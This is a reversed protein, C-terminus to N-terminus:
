EVERDTIEPASDIPSNNEHNAWPEHTPIRKMISYLPNDLQYHKWNSWKEEPSADKNGHVNLNVPFVTPTAQETVAPNASAAGPLNLHM